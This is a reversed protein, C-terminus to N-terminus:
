GGRPNLVADSRGYIILGDHETLEAYDGHRWVNPFVEFYAARFHRSEPDNWFGVPMSPFPAVCVLEGKQGRVPRGEDDYILVKMGLGRTQIEGRYLPGIPNGLAFCSVLDTGGSISALLVDQKVKKYVYDFSRPALPSGTSLITKLASLDHSRRPELGAKEIAALYSASTGFVTLREQEAVDFLVKDDPYLPSGEYLLITAGSALASMLWNWMMWGCTTFYFMRDGRKLDVHLIHEKLHQILTGGAGHVICKPMGTTGSSYLIYVPHDFPFQQFHMEGGESALLNAFSLAHGLGDLVPKAHLYPVVVVKEISPIERVIGRVRELFDVNRGNYTYGDATFLVKPEIQGFRDVVGKLGFEPSCSSWLAGLSTTALMAVVTEPLNPIFGAVRDGPKVGFERLSRATCAAQEYLEAYSLVRRHGTESRFILAPQEDRYRLLNEAFNLKAGVFWKAGPMRDPHVLVQEWPRSARIGCFSWVSAWFQEPHEVSWHYLSAFDAIELKWKEAVAKIFATLNAQRIREESPQWLPAEM